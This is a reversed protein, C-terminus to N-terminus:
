LSARNERRSGNHRNGRGRRERALKAAERRILWRKADAREAELDFRSTREFKSHYGLAGLLAAVTSYRPTRTKGKLLNYVTTYSLGSLERLTGPRKTLNEKEVAECVDEIIPDRNDRGFPYTRYVTVTPAM